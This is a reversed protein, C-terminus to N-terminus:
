QAMLELLNLMQGYNRHINHKGEIHNRAAKGMQRRLHSDRTLLSLNAKFASPQQDDSLLGTVHPVVAEKAGWRDYAVIPLSCAQAELYVMGLSENIGPFAFIDAASYYRSIQRRPVQGLFVTHDPLHTKALSEIYDKESGDGAIVLLLSQGQRFLQGCTKIVVSLGKTKVGSRFMAASMVVPTDDDIQWRARLTQRANRDFSFAGPDIGPAVYRLRESSIIRGLNLHDEIKNSFVVQATLLAKRNLWFGPLTKVDRRRKTSYIGQFITYPINLYRSCVPGLVDPAKYYTHYTLWLNAKVSRSIGVARVSEFLSRFYLWPKWFLWRSRMHSVLKVRHGHARLFDYLESGIVLDGSPHPHGLPKFPMYFAINM